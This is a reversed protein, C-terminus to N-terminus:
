EKPPPRSLTLMKIIIGLVIITFIMTTLVQGTSLKAEPSPTETPPSTEPPVTVEPSAPPPTAPPPPKAVEIRPDGSEELYENGLRDLWEVKALGLAQSGPTPPKVSYVLSIEEGPKLEGVTKTTNGKVEFNSPPRDTIKVKTAAEEGINKVFVEIGVEEGLTIKKKVAKRIELIPGRVKHGFSGSLARGDFSVSYPIEYVGARQGRLLFGLKREEGQSLNGKWVLDEVFGYWTQNERTLHAEFRGEWATDNSFLEIGPPLSIGITVNELAAHGTSKLTMFAEGYEGIGSEKTGGIILNLDKEEARVIVFASKPKIATLLTSAKIAYTKGHFDTYNLAAVIPFSSEKEVPPARMTLFFTKTQGPRLVKLYYLSQGKLIGSGFRTTDTRLSSADIYLFVDRAGDTGNNSITVNYEVEFESLAKINKPTTINVNPYLLSIDASTIYSVRKLKRSCYNPTREDLAKTADFADSDLDLYSIDLSLNADKKDLKITYDLSVEEGARLDGFWSGNGRVVPASTEKFKVERAIANGKNRIKTSVNVEEGIRVIKNGFVYGGDPDLYFSMGTMDKEVTLFPSFNAIAGNSFAIYENGYRDEYSITSISRCIIPDDSIIKYSLWRKRGEMLNGRWSTTGQTVLFDPPPSDSWEVNYANPEGTNELLVLATLERSATAKSWNSVEKHIEVTAPIIEVEVPYLESYQSARALQENEDSYDVQLYLTYNFTKRVNPAKLVYKFDHISGQCLSTSRVSTSVIQFNGFEPSVLVEEAPLEGTNNLAFELRFEENPFMQKRESVTRFVRIDTLNVSINARQPTYISVNAKNEAVSSSYVVVRIDPYKLIGDRGKTVPGKGYFSGWRNIEVYISDGPFVKTLKVEFDEVARTGGLTINDNFREEWGPYKGFIPEPCAAISIPLTLAIILILPLIRM